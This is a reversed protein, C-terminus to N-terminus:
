WSNGSQVYYSFERYLGGMSGGVYFGHQMVSGSAPIPTTVTCVPTGDISFVVNPVADNFKIDWLHANLDAAVGSNVAARTTSSATICQWNTVGLTGGFLFGAETQLSGLTSCSQLQNNLNNVQIVVCTSAATINTLQGYEQFEINQGVLWNLASIYGQGNGQTACPPVTATACGTAGGVGGFAVYYDSTPPNDIQGTSLGAAWVWGASRINGSAPNPPATPLWPTQQWAAASSGSAVPVSGLGPTGSLALGLGGNAGALLGKVQTALNILTAAPVSLAVVTLVAGLVGAAITKKM